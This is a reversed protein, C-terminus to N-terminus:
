SCQSGPYWLAALAHALELLARGCLRRNDICYTAVDRPRSVLRGDEQAIEDRQIKGSVIGFCANGCHGAAPYLEM